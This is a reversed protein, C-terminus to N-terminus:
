KAPQKSPAAAKAPKDKADSNKTADSKAADNKTEGNNKAAAPKIKQRNAKVGQRMQTLQRDVMTEKQSALRDIDSDIDALRKAALEREHRRLELRVDIRRGLLSKIEADVDIDPSMTSRALLLQIRSNIKWTQLELQYRAPDRDKWQAVRESARFLERAARRYQEPRTKRLNELLDAVEAHHERVFALAAAEREPTFAPIADKAKASGKVTTNAAPKAASKSKEQGTAAVVFLGAALLAFPLAAAALPRVNSRFSM